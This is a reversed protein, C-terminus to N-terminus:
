GEHRRETLGLTGPHREDEFAAERDRGRDRKLISGVRDERSALLSIQHVIAALVAWVLLLLGLATLVFGGLVASGNTTLDIHLTSGSLPYAVNMNTTGQCFMVLLGVGAALAAVAVIL